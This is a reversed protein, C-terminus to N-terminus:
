VDMLPRTYTVPRHIQLLNNNNTRRHPPSTTLTLTIPTSPVSRGTITAAVFRTTSKQPALPLCLIPTQPPLPPTSSGYLRGITSAATDAWSLSHPLTRLTFPLSLLPPVYMLIAVVAIDLPYVLLAVNVGLIYWIVGNTTRQGFLKLMETELVQWFLACSTICVKESDRMLVGCVM